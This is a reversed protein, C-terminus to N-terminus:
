TLLAEIVANLRLRGAPTTKLASDTKELFGGEVLRSITVPDFQDPLDTGTLHKFQGTSIGDRLRLGMLILEDRREEPSLKLRKQVGSRAEKVRRLWQSPDRFTQITETKPVNESGPTTLRGHAGPGIGLYDDGQWYLLNHRCEQGHAAHNSIEYGPVGADELIEQTSEFLETGANEDAAAVRQRHFDTGPEITLQYVSLHTPAYDLAENLEERWDEVSQGPRAYILDFSWRDFHKAASDIAKRGDAAMHPRGLFVLDEDRFSQVGISLRNVGAELFQEFVAVEASSPNAEATIELDASPPWNVKIHGIVSAMVDPPMLTPTGGGFFISTVERGSTEPLYYDLERLYADRWAVADIDAAVHSNFDCYPCKSECFPWHIYIGFPM